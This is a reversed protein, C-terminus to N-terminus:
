LPFQLSKLMEARKATQVGALVFGLPKNAADMFQWVDSGAPTWRGAVGAPPPAIMLPLAPTKVAIPMIPFVVDTRKGSLTQALARAANMIPMVYPLTTNGSSAYQASDGLAYVHPASTQL